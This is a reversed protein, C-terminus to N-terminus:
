QQGIAAWAQRLQSLLSSVQEVKKPDRDLRAQLLHRECFLYIAELRASIEGQEMDLTHRLHMIVDEARRLKRHSLAVDRNGMAVSAQHLFRLAGDYLIVVLGEPSATMVSSQRYAQPSTLASM